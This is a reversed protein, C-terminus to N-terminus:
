VSVTSDVFESAARQVDEVYGHETEAVGPGRQEIIAPRYHPNPIGSENMRNLETQALQKVWHGVQQVGTFPLSHMLEQRGATIDKNGQVVTGERPKMDTVLWADEVHRFTRDTTFYLVTASVMSSLLHEIEGARPGSLVRPIQTEPDGLLNVIWGDWLFAVPKGPKEQVGHVPQSAARNVKAVETLMNGSDSGFQTEVYEVSLTADLGEITRSHNEILAKVGAHWLEPKELYDFAAPTSMCIAIVNGQVHASSNQHKQLDPVLGSDGASGTLNIVPGNADKAYAHAGDLFLDNAM